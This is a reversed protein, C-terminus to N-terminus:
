RVARSASGGLSSRVTINRPNSPWGFEGSYRGAGLNLLQGIWQGTSTVYVSLVASPNSSTAAVSLVKRLPRYAASTITVTDTTSPPQVSLVATKQVGAYSATITVFSTAALCTDVSTASHAKSAASAV